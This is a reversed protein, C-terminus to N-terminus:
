KRKDRPLRDRAEIVAQRIVDSKTPLDLADGAKQLQAVAAFFEPDGRLTLAREYKRTATNAMGYQLLM